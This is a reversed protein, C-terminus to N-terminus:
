FHRHLSTSVCHALVQASTPRRAPDRQLLATCLESLDEPVDAVARPSLVDLEQKARLVCAMSGEYPLRQTLMQYLMVGVAYQDSAPTAPQRAAQEPAMYSPTGSVAYPGLPEIGEPLQDNALGLDIIVVRCDHSKRGAGQAAYGQTGQAQPEVLVNAPKLDRHLLGAAHIAAMGEVIQRLIFRLVAFKDCSASVVHEAWFNDLPQGHILEMSFFCLDQEVFMERVAVVNRHTVSALFEYERKLRSARDTNFSRLMKLAVPVGCDRAEYVVGMAGSGLRRVIQIRGNLLKTGAPLWAQVCSAAAPMVARM